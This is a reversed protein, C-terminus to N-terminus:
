LHSFIIECYLEKVVRIFYQIEDHQFAMLPYIIVGDPPVDKIINSVHYVNLNKDHIRAIIMNETECSIAKRYHSQPKIALNNTFIMLNGTFIRPCLSCNFVYCM